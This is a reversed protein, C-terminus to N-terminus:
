PPPFSMGANQMPFDLVFIIQNCILVIPIFFRPYCMSPCDTQQFRINQNNRVLYQSLTMMLDLLKPM